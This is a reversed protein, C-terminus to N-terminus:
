VRSLIAKDAAKKLNRSLEALKSEGAKLTAFDAHNRLAHKIRNNFKRLEEIETELLGTVQSAEQDFENGKRDEDANIAKEFANFLSIYCSMGEAAMLADRYRKLAELVNLELFSRNTADFIRYALLKNVISLIAREDLNLKTGLVSFFRDTVRIVETVAINLEGPKEITEIKTPIEEFKISHSLLYPQLPSFVIRPNALSCSIALMFAIDDASFNQPSGYGFRSPDKLTFKHVSRPSGEKDEIEMSNSPNELTIEVKTKHDPTAPNDILVASLEIILIDM